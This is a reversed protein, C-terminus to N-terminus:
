RPEVEGSETEPADEDEDSGSTTTQVEALREFASKWRDLQDESLDELSLM